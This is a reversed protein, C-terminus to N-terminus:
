YILEIIYIKKNSTGLLIIFINIINYINQM